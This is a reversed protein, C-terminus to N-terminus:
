SVAECGNYDNSSHILTVVLFRNQYWFTFNLNHLPITVLTKYLTQCDCMLLASRPLVRRRRKKYSFTRIEHNPAIFNARESKSSNFVWKQFQLLVRIEIHLFTRPYIGRRDCKGQENWFSAIEWAPLFTLMMFLKTHRQCNNLRFLLPNQSTQFSSPRNSSDILDRCWHM